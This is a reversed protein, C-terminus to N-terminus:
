LQLLVLDKVWQAVAPVGGGISQMIWSETTKSKAVGHTYTITGQQRVKCKQKSSRKFMENAELDKPNRRKHGAQEYRKGM